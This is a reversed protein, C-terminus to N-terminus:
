GGGGLIRRSLRPIAAIPLVMLLVPVTLVVALAAAVPVDGLQQLNLVVVAMTSTGPGYLLSSMTLEGFAFVFVLFWAGVLAPRLIPAVITSVATAASAGSVRAARYLEPPFAGAAGELVRQGVGWLKALYAILILTLTDRLRAGYALLIAVALTSGPVAFGLLVASRFSRGSPRSRLATVISGLVVVLFAALISLLLSRGLAGLFRGALADAFHSMTWNSPVPALGVARTLATLVLVILPGITTVVVTLAIVVVPIWSSSSPVVASGSPGGTRASSGLSSLLREAGIVFALAMVVLTIALLVARSFAEPRAALALDQYISTTVTTFGAPTGLFAPAGFANIASVFVLAAAGLLAPALLPAVITRMMTWRDAGHVLAARELDPEARSRLAAVTVLYAIPVANVSLVIIIGTPGFLGPISVGILKDSLGSPGYARIFSLASVYGPILLPFLVGIRLWGDRGGRVRETVFATVGGAAVAVSAVTAGVWLTNVLARVSRARDFAAPGRRAEDLGVGLLQALPVLVLGVLFIGATVLGVKPWVGGHAAGRNTTARAAM